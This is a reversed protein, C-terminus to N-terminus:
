LGLGDRYQLVHALAVARAPGGAEDANMAVRHGSQDAFGPRVGNLEV